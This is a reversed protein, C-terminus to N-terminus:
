GNPSRTRADARCAAEATWRKRHKSLVSFILRAPDDPRPEVREAYFVEPLDGYHSKCYAVRYRGCLSRWVRWDGALTSFRRARSVFVVRGTRHSERRTKDQTEM